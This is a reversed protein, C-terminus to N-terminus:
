AGDRHVSANQLSNQLIRDHLVKMKYANRAAFTILDKM